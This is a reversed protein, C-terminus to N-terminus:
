LQREVIRFVCLVELMTCVSWSLHSRLCTRPQGRWVTMFDMVVVWWFVMLAWAAVCHMFLVHMKELTWMRIAAMCLLGAKEGSMQVVARQWLLLAACSSQARMELLRMWHNQWGLACCLSECLSVKNQQGCCCTAMPQCFKRWQHAAAWVMMTPQWSARQKGAWFRGAADSSVPWNHTPFHILVKQLENKSLQFSCQLLGRARAFCFDRIQSLTITLKTQDTFTIILHDFYQGIVRKRQAKTL